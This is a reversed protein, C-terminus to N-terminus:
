RKQLAETQLAEASRLVEEAPIQEVLEHTKRNVLRVVTRGSARDFAFSLENNNGFLEASNVARVAQILARQDDSIPRPAAAQVPAIAAALNTISSADM